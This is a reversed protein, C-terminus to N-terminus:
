RGQGQSRGRESGGSTSAELHQELRDLILDLGFAFEDGYDYDRGVIQEAVMEAPHPYRGAGFVEPLTQVFGEADEGDEFPLNAETLVFGYVYADIASFAHAALAVPFGCNRLNALVAEHHDLLTSVPTRRSEILGLACPHAALIGRASDARATM